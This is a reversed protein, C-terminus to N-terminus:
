YVLICIEVIKTKNQKYIILHFMDEEAIKDEKLSVFWSFSCYKYFNNLTPLLNNSVHYM